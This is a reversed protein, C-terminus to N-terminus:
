PKPWKLLPKELIMDLSDFVDKLWLVVSLLLAALNVVPTFTIVFLILLLKGTLQPECRYLPLEDGPHEISYKKLSALTKLDERTAWVIKAIAQVLMTLMPAAYLWFWLNTLLAKM